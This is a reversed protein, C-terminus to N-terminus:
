FLEVEGHEEIQRANLEMLVTERLDHLAEDSLSSIKIGGFFRHNLQEKRLCDKHAPGHGMVTIGDDGYVPLKCYNCRM